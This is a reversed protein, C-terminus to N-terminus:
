NATADCAPLGTAEATSRRSQMMACIEPNVRGDLRRPDFPQGLLFLMTPVVDVNRATAVMRPEIGTGHFAVTAWAEEKTLGGHKSASKEGDVLDGISIFPAASLYLDPAREEMDFAQYLQVMADPYESLYTAMQWEDASHFGGNVLSAIRSDQAFRLPDEGEVVSYRYLARTPAEGQREITSEGRHGFVHVKGTDWDKGVLFSVVDKFAVAEGIVDVRGGSYPYDRLQKLSPRRTWDLREVTIGDESMVPKPFYLLAHGEGAALVIERDDFTEPLAGAVKVGFLQTWAKDLIKARKAGRVFEDISYVDHIDQHGHDSVLAVYREVPVGIERQRADITDNFLRVAEGILADVAEYEQDMEPSTAGWVHEMHDFWGNYAVTLRAPRGGFLRRKFSRLGLKLKARYETPKYKVNWIWPIVSDAGRNLAPAIAMTDNGEPFHEWITLVDAALWSNWDFAELAAYLVPYRQQERDFFYLSPIGHRGPLTGTLVAPLGAGTITPFVTSAHEVWVGQDLFLRKVNPLRGEEAYRKWVDGRAGDIVIVLGYSERPPPETSSFCSPLALVALLAVPIRRRAGTVSAPEIM